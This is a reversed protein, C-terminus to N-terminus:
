VAAGRTGALRRLMALIALAAIWGVVGSILPIHGWGAFWGPLRAPHSILKPWLKAGMVFGAHLGASFYVTGSMVFAEALVIGLLFLGLLMPLAANPQSFQALSMALTRFGAGPELTTVYFHAPARVLHAVAYFASSAILAVTPGFEERMGGFLFARFFGEELIGIAIASLLYKPILRSAHDIRAHGSAGMLVAALFFGAIVALGVGFGRLARAGNRRPAAFATGLLTMLRLRRWIILMAGFLAVMVVRDFIRPFPFRYGLAAVAVAVFPAAIAAAVIAAVLAIAFTLTFSNRMRPQRHGARFDAPLHRNGTADIARL